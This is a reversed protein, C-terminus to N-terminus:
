GNEEPDYEHIDDLRVSPDVARSPYIHPESGTSWSAWNLPAPYCRQLERYSIRSPHTSKTQYLENICSRIQAELVTARRRVIVRREIVDPIFGFAAHVLVQVTEEGTRVSSELVNSDPGNHLKELRATLRGRSQM